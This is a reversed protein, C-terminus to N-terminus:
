LKEKLSTLRLLSDQYSTALLKGDPTWLWSEHVARNEASRPTWGEQIFWKKGLGGKGESGWDLMRLAEGLEHFVVTLMLSAMSSWRTEGLARPILLLSNRDCAYMHACAYLNDFEGAEERERLGRGEEGVVPLGKISYMALQRYREPHRKVEEAQNFAGMDVKRMDVGPFEREVLDGTKLGEIWWDADVSPSVPYEEASKGAIISAYREQVPAPQHVFGSQKERRKFSCLCSFCIQNAQRVDVSRTCYMNGDRLHRVTYEYPVDLLGGLIFTGSISHIVFGKDVTQSAAYASQAYVHGGFARTGEGPPYPPAISEFRETPETTSSSDSSPPNPLRRLAMLEAFSSPSPNSTPDHM